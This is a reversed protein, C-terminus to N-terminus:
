SIGAGIKVRGSGRVVDKLNEDLEARQASLSEIKAKAKEIEATLLLTTYCFFFPAITAHSDSSGVCPFNTRRVDVHM